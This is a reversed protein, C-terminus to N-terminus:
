PAKMDRTVIATTKSITEQDKLQELVRDQRGRAYPLDKRYHSAYQQYDVLHIPAVVEGLVFISHLIQHM